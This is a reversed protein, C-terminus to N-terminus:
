QPNKSLVFKNILGYGLLFGLATEVLAVLLYVLYHMPIVRILSIWSLWFIISWLGLVCVVLGIWGQYPVLKDILEKANPQKKIVLSAAAILGCIILAVSWLILNFRSM